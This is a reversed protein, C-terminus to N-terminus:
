VKYAYDGWHTTQVQPYLYLPIKAISLKECFNKDEHEVQMDYFGNSRCITSFWPVGVKRFVDVDVLLVGAGIECVPIPDYPLKDGQFNKKEGELIFNWNIEKTKLRVPLGMVMATGKKRMFAEMQLIFGSPQVIIDSDWYLVFDFNGRVAFSASVNRNHAISLDCPRDWSVQWDTLTRMAEMVSGVQRSDMQHKYLPTSILLKM